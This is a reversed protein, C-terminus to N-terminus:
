LDIIVGHHLFALRAIVKKGTIDRLAKAYLLQKERYDEAKKKADERDTKYDVIEYIGNRQLLLDIYYQKGKVLLPYERGILVAGELNYIDFFRMALPIAHDPFELAHRLQEGNKKLWLEPEGFDIFELIAHVETGVRMQKEKDPQVLPLCDPYLRNFEDSVGQYVGAPDKQKFVDHSPLQGSVSEEKFLGAAASLANNLIDAPSNAKTKEPIFIDLKVRPRTIAVYLLRRYEARSRAKERAALDNFNATLGGAMKVGATLERANALVSPTTNRFSNGPNVLIVHRWALGKARHITSLTVVGSRTEPPASPEESSMPAEGTLTDLLLAYDTTNHATELIFKLNGLRRSVQYGSERVATLLCTNRFLTEMFPGPPLTLSVSRLKALLEEAAIVTDPSSGKRWLTIDRDNIGFFISRFTRALALKDSPCLVARLLNATDRVESRKHFDRSAEVKYPIGKRDLAQVLSDLHTKTRFLIATSAPDEILETIRDAEIDAMENASVDPLRFVTIADGTTAGPRAEIESYSCSFPEEELPVGTFLASGLANVFNIISIESRFNVVITESLAHGNELQSLTDKYTEIDASRWGFISQKPDGVVTLKKQLGSQGLITSFLGVQVLSTDQFEDIFIHCFRENLQQRLESSSSVALMAKYLLDNFSLRTPDSDWVTRLKNVFPIVLKNLSPLLPIMVSYSSILKHGTDNYEKLIVKVEKFSEKGGWNKASGGSRKVKQPVESGLSDRADLINKLLKDGPDSCLPILSDLRKGWLSRTIELQARTDGLPSSTSFWRFEEIGAAIELLKSSGPNKLSEASARLVSPEADALFLDWLIAMESKSFHGTEMAFEPASNCLHFYERLIRSAFGDITTIWAQDMTRRQEPTLKERIRMRLESAAARTFTVIALKELPIGSDVLEKVRHTLLTTKGTGASAEVIVSRNKETRIAERTANDSIVM